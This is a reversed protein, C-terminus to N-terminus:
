RDQPVITERMLTTQVRPSTLCTSFFTMPILVEINGNGNHGVEIFWDSGAPMRSNVDKMWPIHEALDAPTITFSTNTPYYIDADLFMDDVAFMNSGYQFSSVLTM